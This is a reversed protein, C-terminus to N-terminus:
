KDTIYVENRLIKGYYKKTHQMLHMKYINKKYINSIDEDFAETIRYMKPGPRIKSIITRYELELIDYCKKNDLYDKDPIHAKDQAFLYLQKAFLEFLAHLCLKNRWEIPINDEGYYAGALQGYIAGTTDTDGGLNVVQLLGDKYSNTHFFAWLAAEMSLDVLGSGWLEPPQKIKYSGEVVKTVEPLLPNDTWYTPSLGKPVYYPKLLNDKNEGQLAGIILGSYYACCQTCRLSAHTTLVSKISYEIAELPNIHYFLPIPALRM